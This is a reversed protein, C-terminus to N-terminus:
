RVISLKEFITEAELLYREAQQQTTMETGMDLDPAVTLCQGLAYLTLATEYVDDKVRMLSGQFADLAAAYEGQQQYLLGQIRLSKGKELKMRMSQALDLSQALNAQAQDLEGHALNLEAKLRYLEPLKIKADITMAIIEAENLHDETQIYNEQQLHLTSLNLIIDLQYLYFNNQEALIRSETFLQLAET